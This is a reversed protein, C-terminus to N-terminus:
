RNLLSNLVIALIVAFLIRIHAVFAAIRHRAILLIQGVHLGVVLIRHEPGLTQTAALFEGVGFRVLIMQVFHAVHFPGPHAFITAFTERVTAHQLLVDFTNM